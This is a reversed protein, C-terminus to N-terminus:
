ALGSEDLTTAHENPRHTPLVVRMCTGKGLTSSTEIRGGHQSVIGYSVSLGLGTGVGQPKTTYFPEFIHKLDDPAIGSGSDSIEVWVENADSGTRM